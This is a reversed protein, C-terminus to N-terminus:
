GVRAHAIEEDDTLDWAFEPSCFGVFRLTTEGIRIMDANSLEETSLVPRGNLRVLNSKGGHGIFFSNLDEDYAIAAHSERSISNDGFNLRITQNEGRGINSVGYQLTFSAGRGPGEILVLWGVPFRDYASETRTDARDFVNAEAPETNHFGLMRTKARGARPAPQADPPTPAHKPAAVQAAIPSTAAPVAVPAAAPAAAPPPVIMSKMAERALEQQSNEPVEITEPESAVEIDEDFMEWIKVVEEDQDSSDSAQAEEPEDIEAIAQPENGDVDEPDHEEFEFSDSTDFSEHRHAHDPAYDALGDAVAFHQEDAPEPDDLEMSSYFGDEPPNTKKAIIEKLFRM